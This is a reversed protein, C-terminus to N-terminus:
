VVAVPGKSESSLEAYSKGEGAAQEIPLACEKWGACATRGLADREGEFGGRMDVVATYGMGALLEAARLSRNGTKCGVILEDTKAFHKEFVAAFDPNPSMGRGPAFHMLPLNYAGVPHGAEYEPISRVDVYRYGRALLDQAEKPSVRTVPM